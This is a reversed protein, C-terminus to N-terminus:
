IVHLFLGSYQIKFNISRAGAFAAAAFLLNKVIGLYFYPPFM